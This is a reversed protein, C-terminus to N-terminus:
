RRAENTGPRPAPTHAPGINLHPAIWGPEAPADSPNSAPLACYGNPSCEPHLLTPRLSGVATRWASPTPRPGSVRASSHPTVPHVTATTTPTTTAANAREHQESLATASMKAGAVVPLLRVTTPQYDNSRSDQERQCEGDDSPQMRRMAKPGHSRHTRRVCRADQPAGRGCSCNGDSVDLLQAIGRFVRM